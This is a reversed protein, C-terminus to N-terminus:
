AFFCVSETTFFDEDDALIEFVDEVSTGVGDFTAADDM